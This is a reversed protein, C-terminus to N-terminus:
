PTTTTTPATTTTTAPRPQVITVAIPTEVGKPTRAIIVIDFSGSTPDPCAKTQADIERKLTFSHGTGGPVSTDPIRASLEGSLKEPLGALSLTTGAPMPNRNIDFLVFNFSAQCVQSGNSDVRLFEYELKPDNKPDKPFDAQPRTKSIRAESGSLVVIQSQRVHAAGWRGDCTNPTMPAYPSSDTYGTACAKNNGADFQITQEAGGDFSTDEDIDLFLNGLDNFVEGSDLFNNGNLDIFSEEGLSYAVVVVRGANVQLVPEVPGTPRPNASSLNVSCRGDTTECSPQIQAGSSIFNIVTGNPVPNGLRDSAFANIKSITGDFQWGEINHDASLSFRDQAPRGTSITLRISQTRYTIGESTVEANVWVPTPNTGAQVSVQVEGRADTLKSVAAPSNDLLIGGSRTTLDLLVVRNSIPQNNNDVLRFKVLSAEQFGASGTGKLVISQPTASIFQISAVSPAAVSLNVSSSVSSGAINATITDTSACGNDTYTATAVGNVSQVTAPLTAKGSSVCLSTFNVTVPTTTPVGTISVTVSTTGYPSLPQAGVVQLNSLGVSAAGVSFGISGTVDTSKVSAVASLIGAGASAISAAAVQISATGSSDTLATGSSPTMAVLDTPATFTVVANPVALGAADVLRATAKLPRGLSIANSSGGSAVDTLTITLSNSGTPTTSGGSSGTSGFSSGPSGGGGGGGCGAALLLVGACLVSLAKKLNIMTM